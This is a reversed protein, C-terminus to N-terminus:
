GVSQRRKRRKGVLSITKGMGPTSPLPYPQPPTGPCCTRLHHHTPAATPVGPRHEPVQSKGRSVKALM